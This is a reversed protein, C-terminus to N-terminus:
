WGIPKVLEWIRFAAINSDAIAAKGGGNGFAERTSADNGLVAQLNDFEHIIFHKGVSALDHDAPDKGDTIPPGIVYRQSRRHGSIKHVLQFHEEVWGTYSGEHKPGIEITM